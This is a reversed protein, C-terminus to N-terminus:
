IINEVGVRNKETGLERSENESDRQKRQHM